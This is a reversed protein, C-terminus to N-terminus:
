ILLNVTNLFAKIKIIFQASLVSIITLVDKSDNARPTEGRKKMELSKAANPSHDNLVVDILTEFLLERNILKYNEPDECYRRLSLQRLQPM